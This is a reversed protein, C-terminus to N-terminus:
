RDDTVQREWMDTARVLRREGAGCDTVDAGRRLPEVLRVMKAFRSCLQSANLRRTSPCARLADFGNSSRTFNRAITLEFRSSNKSIRTAPNICCASESDLPNLM